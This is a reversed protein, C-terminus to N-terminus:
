GNGAGFFPEGTDGMKKPLNWWWHQYGFLYEEWYAQDKTVAYARIADVTWWTASDECHICGGALCVKDPNPHCMMVQDFEQMVVTNEATRKTRSV